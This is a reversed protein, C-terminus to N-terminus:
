CLRRRVDAFTIEFIRLIAGLARGFARRMDAGERKYLCGNVKKIEDSEDNRGYARNGRDCPALAHPRSTYKKSERGCILVKRGYKPETRASVRLYSAAM